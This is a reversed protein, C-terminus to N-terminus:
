SVSFKKSFPFKLIEIELCKTMIENFNMACKNFIGIAMTYIKKDYSILKKKIFAVTKVIM